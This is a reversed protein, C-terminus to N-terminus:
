PWLLTILPGFVLSPLYDALDLKKLELIVLAVCFILLGSTADISQIMPLSLHQALWRSLLTITGQCALVPLASLVVSWGFMRAFAMTALGDMVAKIILPQFYGSLGDSVAGLV